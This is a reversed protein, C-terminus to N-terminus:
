DGDAETEDTPCLRHGEFVTLVHLEHGVVQYVFRYTRLFVERVGPQEVEPVLRGALPATAAGRARERLRNVWKRAAVPDDQAIYAHIADPDALAQPM